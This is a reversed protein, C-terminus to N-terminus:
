YKKVFLPNFDIYFSSSFFLIYNIFIALDYNYGIGAFFIALSIAKIKRNKQNLIIMLFIYLYYFLGIIGRGLIVGSWDSEIVWKENISTDNIDSKLKSFYFRAGSYWPAGGLLINLPSSDVQWIKPIFTVYEIRRDGLKSTGRFGRDFDIFRPVLIAFIIVAFFLLVARRYSFFYKCYYYIIAMLLGVQGSRSGSYYLLILLYIKLCNNKFIFFGTACFVGLLFPDWLLGSIRGYLSVDQKDIFGLFPLLMQNLRIKFFLLFILELGAYIFNIILSIKYGSFFSYAEIINTKRLFTIAMLFISVSATLNHIFFENSYTGALFLSFIFIFYKGILINNSYKDENIILLYLARLAVFVNCSIYTLKIIFFAERFIFFCTNLGIYFFCWDKKKVIGCPPLPDIKKCIVTM